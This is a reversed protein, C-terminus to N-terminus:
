AKIKGRLHRPPTMASVAITTADISAGAETGTVSASDGVMSSDIMRRGTGTIITKGAAFNVTMIQNGNSSNVALGMSNNGVSTIRGKISRHQSTRSGTSGTHCADSINGIGVVMALACFLIQKQMM